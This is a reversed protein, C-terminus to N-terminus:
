ALVFVKVGMNPEVHSTSITAEVPRGLEKAVVDACDPDM